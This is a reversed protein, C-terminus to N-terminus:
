SSDICMSKKTLVVVFGSDWVLQSLSCVFGVVLVFIYFFDYVLAISLIVTNFVDASVLPCYSIDYNQCM